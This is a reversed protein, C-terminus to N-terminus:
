VKIKERQALPPWTMSRCGNLFKGNRFEQSLAQATCTHVLSTETLYFQETCYGFSLCEQASTCGPSQRWCRSFISPLNIATLSFIPLSTSCEMLEGPTQQHVNLGTHTVPSLCSASLCCPIIVNHNHFICWFDPNSKQKKWWGRNTVLSSHPKASATCERQLLLELWSSILVNRLLPM